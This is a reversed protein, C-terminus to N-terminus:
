LIFSVVVMWVPLLPVSMSCSPGVGMHIFIQPPIDQSHPTETGCWDVWDLIGTGPLYTGVVESQLFWQPTLQHFFSRSGWATGRLSGVCPSQTAVM